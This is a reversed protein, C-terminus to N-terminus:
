IEKNKTDLEAKLERIQKNEEVEKRILELNKKRENQLEKQKHELDQKLERIM